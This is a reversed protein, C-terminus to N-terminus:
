RRFEVAATDLALRCPVSLPFFLCFVYTLWQDGTLWGSGSDETKPGQSRSKVEALRLCFAVEKSKGEPVPPKKKMGSYPVTIGYLLQLVFVFFLFL